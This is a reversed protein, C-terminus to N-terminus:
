QNSALDFVPAYMALLIFGVIGGIVVFMAPEIMKLAAAMASDVDDEYFAAVKELMQDLQGSAEGISVMSFVMPPFLPSQSMPVAIGKGKQVEERIKMIEVEIVKNGSAKACVELAEIISIGSSVLTAMTSAFRAISVKLVLNGFVPLKLMLSDWRAAGQPTAKWKKFAFGAAFLGGIIMHFSNQLVNSADIVGQTIGPLERGSDEYNKAFMPVVFVLMLVTMGIALAVIIAPYSLASVLQKRLKEAKEIYTSLRKMMVDLQGSSQGAAILNTYLSDFIHPSKAMAASLELGGEVGERVKTLAERLAPNESQNALMDLAQVISVGADIMVSLQKTFVALDNGSVKSRSFKFEITGDIKVRFLGFDKGAGEGGVATVNLGMLRLMTRAESETKAQIKGSVKRGGRGRAVYSFEGM